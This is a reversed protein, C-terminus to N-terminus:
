TDPYRDPQRLDDHLLVEVKRREAVLLRSWERSYHRVVARRRGPM